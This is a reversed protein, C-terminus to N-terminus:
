EFIKVWRKKLNGLLSLVVFILDRDCSNCILKRMKSRKKTKNKYKKHSLPFHWTHRWLFVGIIWRKKIAKREWKEEWGDKKSTNKQRWVHCKGSDRKKVQRSFLTNINMENKARVERNLETDLQRGVQRIEKIVMDAISFDVESYYKYKNLLLGKLCRSASLTLPLRVWNWCLIKFIYSFNYM